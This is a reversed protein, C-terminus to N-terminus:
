HVPMTGMSNYLTTCRFVFDGNSEAGYLQIAVIEEKHQDVKAATKPTISVYLARSTDWNATTM